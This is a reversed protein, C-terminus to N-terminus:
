FKIIVTAANGSSKPTTWNPGEKILRIAEENEVKTLGNVVKVNTPRGNNRVNFTLVVAKTSAGSKLLKNNNKLYLEFSEKGIVPESNNTAIVVENLSNHQEELEIVKKDANVVKSEYGLYAVSLKPNTIASDVTLAFEGRANTITRIDGNALKVSAGPIPQGDIKSIVKGSFVNPVFTVGAAKSALTQTAPKAEKTKSISFELTDTKVISKALELSNTLKNHKLDDANEAPEEFHQVISPPNNKALRTAKVDALAEIEKETIVTPAPPTAPATPNITAVQPAANVEVKKANKATMERRNSEKMWFLLSVTVFLVAAAAAISLRQSTIRWMKKEIPKQAVREQLQKQLLSLSQTRKKSESLGALAEAVFPDELSIREVRYMEKADLKGDLYDELVDIDLWDNNVM